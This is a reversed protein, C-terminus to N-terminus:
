LRLSLNRTQSVATVCDRVKIVLCYLKTGALLRNHETASNIVLKCFNRLAAKM